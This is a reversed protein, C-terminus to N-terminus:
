QLAEPGPHRYVLAAQWGDIDPIAATTDRACGLREALAISRTNAPDIYSVATTWGLTSFAHTQAARAAEYAYGRGEASDHWLHWAIEAEPYDAPQHPGVMGLIDGTARDAVVFRGYGKAQWHACDGAFRQRAVDKTLLTGTRARRPSTYFAVYAAKDVPEPARLTLRETTLRTATM